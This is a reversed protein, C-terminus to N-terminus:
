DGKVARFMAQPLEYKNIIAKNQKNRKLLIINWNDVFVPAWAPDSIRRILFPQAHETMDHRMFYIVNFNIQSDIEHWKTESEQMPKYIENFFKTSYAEPRNDVFVRRAPFLHFILYGGIDYNNFIPGQINVARFFEASQNSRSDIGLKKYNDLKVHSINFLLALYIILAVYCVRERHQNQAQYSALLNLQYCNYALIPISSLIFLPITRITKFALLALVFSIIIFALESKIFEKLGLVSKRYRMVWVLLNIFILIDFYYYLFQYPFRKHMFWIAQNEILDYAYNHFIKLPELLGTLGFPNVLSALLVAIVIYLYKRTQIDKFITGSKSTSELYFAGIMFVGISFFIHLNIWLMQSLTLLTIAWKFGLKKSRFLTLIYFELGMLMYSFSEPRVEDRWVLIPLTLVLALIALETGALMRAALFFFIIGIIIVAINLVSLGLFDFSKYTLYHVVGTLWHHNIVPYDPETYSYFNQYLPTQTKLDAGTQLAELIIRGNTIHRGLDATALSISESLGCILYTLALALVSIKLINNISFTM